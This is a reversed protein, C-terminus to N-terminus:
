YSKIESRFLSQLQAFSIKFYIQKVVKLTSWWIWIEHVDTWYSYLYTLLWVRCLICILKKISDHWLFFFLLFTVTL